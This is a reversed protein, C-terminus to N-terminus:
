GKARAPWCSRCTPARKPTWRRSSNTSTSTRPPRRCRSRRAAPLSGDAPTGPDVEVTMDQLQTKPRLLLTANHYIPARVEPDPEDDGGRRREAPGRERNGRDERRRDDGGPGPRADGGPRDPLRGEAHLLKEGAGTGLEAAQPERARPHLRGRGGRDRDDHGGRHVGHPLARDPRPREARGRAGRGADDGAGTRPGSVLPGNFNPCRRRTAPCSRSTRPSKPPIPRAPAWRSWRRAPSCRDPGEHEIGVIRGAGLPVDNGGGGVLFRNMAGNGDFSQGLGALGTLTYWFEKYDEVGSTNSGDQLKTNGAPFFVNTLCKSFLDTQKYFATQEGFLRALSPTAAVLGKAVGGLESPALSAKCRNSGRCRRPSRRPCSSSGRSSTSRSRGRRRCARRRARDVGRDVNRLASPLEAVTARLSSSQAAFSHFFTNFNGILEGLQQEHVNLAATVKGISAVLKSLDHAETGTIAQNVIATGRLAAPGRQYAKNLAQAANLGRVEPDQEANEAANPKRTLGDGYGILFNQLNARTDTNLADLVQDLQVPDSTQTIPLTAGSSLTKASPSGPQLEVFWNGELFIRPRIKLTADSHIPLGKSEIEMTVLGTDGERRISSVKGVDVGAIRVPSKPHINVATAFVAKLRFGHKFPIHKTFGFYVAIVLIVLFVVGFRLPNYRQM